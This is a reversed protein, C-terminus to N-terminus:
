ADRAEVKIPIPGVPAAEGPELRAHVGLAPAQMVIASVSSPADLDLTPTATILRLWHRRQASRVSATAVAAVGVNLPNALLPALWPPFSRGGGGEGARTDDPSADSTPGADSAASAPAESTEALPIAASSPADSTATVPIDSSAPTESPASGRSCRAALETRAHSQRGAFPRHAMAGPM